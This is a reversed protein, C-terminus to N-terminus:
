SGLKAMSRRKPPVAKVLVAVNIVLNRSEIRNYGRLEPWEAAWQFGNLQAGNHDVPQRNGTRQIEPNGAWQIGAAGGAMTTPLPDSPCNHSATPGWTPLLTPTHPATKSPVWRPTTPKTGLSPSAPWGACGHSDSTKTLAWAPTSPSPITLPPPHRLPTSTPEQSLHDFLM